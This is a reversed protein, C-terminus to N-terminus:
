WPHVSGDWRFFGGNDAPTTRNVVKVIGEASEQPTIDATAGGMDTQVWGPHIMITTVGDTNRDAALTRAAMNLAAKSMRYAYSGGSKTWNLSGMQSTIMVLRPNDGRKLLEIFSESVMLPAIANTVVIHSVAETELMGLQRSNAAKPFIGANNILIDLKDAQRSVTDVATQISQEDTIDLQIISLHDPDAQALKQLEDASQPQRCAAFIHVKGQRLFLKVM